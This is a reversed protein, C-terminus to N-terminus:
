RLSQQSLQTVPVSANSVVSVTEISDDPFQQDPTVNYEAFVPIEGESTMIIAPGEHESSISNLREVSALPLTSLLTTNSGFRGRSVSLSSSARDVKVRPSSEGTGCSWPARALIHLLTLSRHIIMAVFQVMIIFGYVTLFALGM